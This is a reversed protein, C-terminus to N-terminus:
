PCRGDSDRWLAADSPELDRSTQSSDGVEDDARHRYRHHDRQQHHDPPPIGGHPSEFKQHEDRHTLRRSPFFPVPAGTTLSALGIRVRPKM